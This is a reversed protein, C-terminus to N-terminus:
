ESTIYFALGYAFIFMYIDNCIGDYIRILLDLRDHGLGVMKLYENYMFKQSSYFEQISGVVQLATFISGGNDIYDLATIIGLIFSIVHRVSFENKLIFGDQDQLDQLPEEVTKEKENKSSFEVPVHLNKIEDIRPDVTESAFVIKKEPLDQESSAKYLGTIKALREEASLQIRRKRAERKDM